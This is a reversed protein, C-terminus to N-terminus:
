RDADQLYRYIKEAIIRNGKKSPHCEDFFNRRYHLRENKLLTAVKAFDLFVGEPLFKELIRLYRGPRGAAPWQPTDPEGPPLLSDTFDIYEVAERDLITKYYEMLSAHDSFANIWRDWIWEKTWGRGYAPPIFLYIIRAAEKRGLAIMERLPFEIFLKRCFEKERPTLNALASWIHPATRFIRATKELLILEDPNLNEGHEKKVKELYDRYIARIHGFLDESSLLDNNGYNVLVIDPKFPIVYKKLFLLEQFTSYGGVGANIVEYEGLGQNLMEQLLGLFTNEENVVVGFMVSDGIGFIRTTGKKKERAIERSGRFGSSNTEVRVNGYSWGSFNPRNRYGLAPDPTFIGYDFDFAGVGHDYGFSRDRVVRRVVVKLGVAIVLLFLGITLLLLLVSKIPNRSTAKM